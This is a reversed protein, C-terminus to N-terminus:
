SPVLSLPKLLLPLFSITCVAAELKPLSVLFASVKQSVCLQCNGIRNVFASIIYNLILVIKHWSALPVEAM